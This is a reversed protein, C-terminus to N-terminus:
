DVLVILELKLKVRRLLDEAENFLSYSYGIVIFAVILCVLGFKRQKSLDM